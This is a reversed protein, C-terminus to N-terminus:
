EINRNCQTMKHQIVSGSSPSELQLFIREINPDHDVWGCSWVLRTYSCVAYCSLMLYCGCMYIWSSDHGAKHSGSINGSQIVWCKIKWLTLVKEQAPFTAATGPAPAVPGSWWPLAEDGDNVNGIWRGIWLACQQFSKRSPRSFVMWFSSTLSTQSPHKSSSFFSLVCCDRTEIQAINHQSGHGHKPWTRITLWDPAPQFLMPTPLFWLSPLWPM